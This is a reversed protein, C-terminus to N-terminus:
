VAEELTRGLNNAGIDRTAVIRIEPGDHAMCTASLSEAMMRINSRKAVLMVRGGGKAKYQTLLDAFVAIFEANFSELGAADILADTGAFVRGERMLEERIFRALNADGAGSSLSILILGNPHFKVDPAIPIKGSSKRSDSM